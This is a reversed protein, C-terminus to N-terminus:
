FNELIEKDTIDLTEKSTFYFCYADDTGKQNELLSQFAQGVQGNAGTILINKPM